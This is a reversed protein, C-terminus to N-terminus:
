REVENIAGVIRKVLDAAGDQYGLEYNSPNPNRRPAFVFSRLWEDLIAAGEPNDRFLRWLRQKGEEPEQQGEPNALNETAWEYAGPKSM